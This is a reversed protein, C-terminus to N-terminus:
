VKSEGSKRCQTPSFLFHGGYLYDGNTLKGNPTMSKFEQDWIETTVRLQFIVNIVTSKALLTTLCPRVTNLKLFIIKQCKSM